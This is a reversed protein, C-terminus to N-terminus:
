TAITVAWLALREILGTPELFAGREDQWHRVEVDDKRKRRFQALYRAGVGLDYIAQERPEASGRQKFDRCRRSVEICLWGDRRYQVGPSAIEVIM